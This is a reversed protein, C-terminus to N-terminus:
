TNSQVVVALEFIFKLEILLSLTMILPQYEYDVMVAVVQKSGGAVTIATKMDHHTIICKMTDHNM